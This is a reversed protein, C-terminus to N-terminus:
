CTCCDHFHLLEWLVQGIWRRNGKQCISGPSVATRFRLLSTYGRSLGRCVWCFCWFAKHLALVSCTLSPHPRASSILCCPPTPLQVSMMRPVACCKLYRQTSGLAEGRGEFLPAGLMVSRVQAWRVGSPASHRVCLEHEELEAAKGLM